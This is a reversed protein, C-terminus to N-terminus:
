DESDADANEKALAAADAPTWDKSATKQQQEEPERLVEGQGHKTLGMITDGGGSLISGYVGLFDFM